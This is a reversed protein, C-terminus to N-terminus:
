NSLKSFLIKFFPNSSVYLPWNEGGVSLDQPRDATNFQGQSSTQRIFALIETATKDPNLTRYVAVTGSVFPASMSTGSRVKTSSSTENSASLISLGPAYVSVCNGVNSFYTVKDNADISGVNIVNATAGPSINCADSGYNPNNGAATVVVCDWQNIANDIADDLAENIQASTFSLNIVCKRGPRSGIQSGVWQLANLVNIITSSGVSDLIKVARIQAGKAVGFTKGAIIGAVHSGHGNDDSCTDTLCRINKARGEFEEHAENVGSDLVYVDTNSGGNEIYDFKNDLPLSQQDIRDLGWNKPALEVQFGSNSDTSGGNGNTSTNSTGQDFDVVFPNDSSQKIIGEKELNQFLNNFAQRKQLYTRRAPKLSRASESSPEQVAMQVFHNKSVKKVEQRAGIQEILEPTFTGSYYANPFNEFKFFGTVKSEVGEGSRKVLRNVHKCSKTIWLDHQTVNADKKLQIIYENPVWPFPANDKTLSGAQVMMVRAMFPVPVYPPGSWTGCVGKVVAVIVFLYVWSFSSGRFILNM